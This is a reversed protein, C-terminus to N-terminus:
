TKQFSAIPLCFLAVKRDGERKGDKLLTGQLVGSPLMQFEATGTTLVIPGHDRVEVKIDSPRVPASTPPVAAKECSLSLLLAGGIAILSCWRSFNARKM